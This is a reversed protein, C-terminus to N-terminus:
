EHFIESMGNCYTYLVCVQKQEALKKQKMLRRLTIRDFFSDNPQKDSNLAMKTYEFASNYM